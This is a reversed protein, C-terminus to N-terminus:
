VKLGVGGHSRPLSTGTEDPESRRTNKYRPRYNNTRAANSLVPPHSVHARMQKALTAGNNRDTNPWHAATDNWMRAATTATRRATKTLLRRLPSAATDDHLANHLCLPMGFEERQPQLPPCTSCAGSPSSLKDLCPRTRAETSRTLGGLRRLPTLKRRAAEELRRRRPPPGHCCGDM